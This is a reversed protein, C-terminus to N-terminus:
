CVNDLSDVPKYISAVKPYEVILGDKKAMVALINRVDAVYKMLVDNQEIIVKLANLTTDVPMIDPNIKDNM